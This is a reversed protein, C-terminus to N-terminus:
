LPTRFSTLVVLKANMVASGGLGTMKRVVAINVLATVPVYVRTIVDKGDM